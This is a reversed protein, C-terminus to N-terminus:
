LQVGGLPVNSFLWRLSEAAFEQNEPRSPCAHYTLHPGNLMIKNGASDVAYLDPHEALHHELNYPSNGEYYVGGYSNLGIGAMLRVENKAAVECLKKVSEVGGHADRLLGWVTVADVHHRGCWELLATFDQLFIPTNRGYTDSSGITKAGAHNLAWETSHDWVWFMRVKIPPEAKTSEAQPADIRAPAASDGLGPTGLAAAMSAQLVQRRSYISM